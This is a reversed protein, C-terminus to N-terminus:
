TFSFQVNTEDDIKLNIDSLYISGLNYKANVSGFGAAKKFNKFAKATDKRISGFLNM